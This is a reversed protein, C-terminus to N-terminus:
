NIKLLMRQSNELNRGFGLGGGPANFGFRVPPAELPPGIRPPRPAELPAGLPRPPKPSRPRPPALPPPLPPNPAPLPLRPPLGLKVLGPGRPRPDYNILGPTAAFPTKHIPFSGFHLGNLKVGEISCTLLSEHGLVRDDFPSSLLTWKSGTTRKFSHRLVGGIM